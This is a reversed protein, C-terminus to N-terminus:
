ERYMNIIALDKVFVDEDSKGIDEQEHFIYRATTLKIFPM